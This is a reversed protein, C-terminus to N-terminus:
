RLRGIAPRTEGNGNNYSTWGARVQGTVAYAAADDDFLYVWGGAGPYPGLGVATEARGDGDLDGCAVRTQGDYAWYSSWPVQGWARHAYGASADDLVEFQGAAGRGLGVVIESRGDGDTDGCAPQTSGDASNYSSWQVRLRALLAYGGVADDRVDVVGGDPTYRGYGFILEARGDGDVDGFAPRVEGNAYTYASRGCSVRTLFAAGTTLDDFIEVYGSYGYAPGTGLAIEARGDGDVDGCAPWVEGNRYYYNSSRIRVWRRLAYGALADDLVAAWGGYYTYPGTGVVLEDLGDGDVDGTAVRTEGSYSNYASWPFYLFSEHAHASAATGLVDIWGSSGRGLGIVPQVTGAVVVTTGAFDQGTVPSNTVVATRSTPAFTTSARTPTVTWTGAAVGTFSYDGSANTTASLTAPGTAGVTVGAQPSGDVIVNGSISLTTGAFDQGTVPATSVVASRSAPSFAVGSLTPTVTYTGTATTNITYNGAADTVASLAAPGTASVSVGSRPSGDVNVNGSISLTTGAFDQGTVASGSVVVSRSAPSFAVGGLSPTVTYTGDALAAFSYDGAGDTVTALAAPGTASVAVGVRPTGDVTVRGAISGTPAPPPPPPPAAGSAQIELRWENLTGVDYAARDEVTLTWTGSAAQGVFASLSQAPATQTDYWTVLNDTSGGTQNHLIVSTGSPSRVLIFLDGIYTHTLNVFVNVDQVTGAGAPVVITSTTIQFDTIPLDPNPDNTYTTTTAAVGTFDQASASSTTLTVSRSAPTFAFGASTSTVTYSGNLLSGFSYNGSADTATSAAAAGSLAVTVGALAGAGDTVTGSISLPNTLTAAFDNGASDAGALAVAISVPAFTFNLRSPTVTYAGDALGAFTYTGTSGTTATASAAGSLTVTVGSLPSGGQRVTGSISHLSPSSGISLLSRYVNLRGGTATRGAMSAKADVGSFIATRVQAHTRTPAYSWLLACAGTVHPTAMSTGSLSAYRSGPYTSYIASGPAGLDVSTAGYNSFSSKLDYRDTSAVAILNPNTFSSPYHPSSDNNTGSNGAAAVFLVGAADAEAIADYEAQSSGGGGWSNNTVRAGNRTAYRIARIADSDYGSGGASLFKLGMLRARWCVGVVGLVNNGTGAVTGSVHTGHGNDDFPNNDNNVFDWGRLDDVYGNADDDVGSVGSVEAANTWINGALDPHNWDIGTDIIGVVVNTGTTLDWAEPADIDADRTGGSQGTNNLGYLFYGYYTDNPTRDAEIAWDPQATEVVDGAPVLALLAEEVVADDPLEALIWRDMEESPGTGLSPGPKADIRSLLDKRAADDAKASVKVLLRRPHYAHSEMDILSRRLWVPLAAWREVARARRAAAAVPDADDAKPDLLSLARASPEPLAAPAQDAEAQARARDPADRDAEPLEGLSLGSRRPPDSTRPRRVDTLSLALFFLVTFALALAGKSSNRFRM